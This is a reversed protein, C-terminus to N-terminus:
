ALLTDLYKDVPQSIDVPQADKFATDLQSRLGQLDFMPKSPEQQMPEPIAAFLDTKSKTPADISFDVQEIKPQALAFDIKPQQPATEQQAPEGVAFQDTSIEDSQPPADIGVAGYGARAVDQQSVKGYVGASKLIKEGSMKPQFLGLLKDFDAQAMPTSGYKTARSLVKPVYERAQDALPSLGKMWKDVNGQGTNYDALALPLNGARAKIRESLIRAGENISYAPDSSLRAPDVTPHWRPVIQTLGIANKNSKANPSWSSEQEILGSLVGNPIGFKAEAQQALAKYTAVDNNKAM